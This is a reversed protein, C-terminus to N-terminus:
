INMDRRGLGGRFSFEGKLLGLKVLRLVGGGAITRGGVGDFSGKLLRCGVGLLRRAGGGGRGCPGVVSNLDASLLRFRGLPMSAEIVVDKGCPIWCGRVGASSTVM